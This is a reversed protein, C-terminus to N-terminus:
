TRVGPEAAGLLSDAHGRREEEAVAERVKAVAEDIRSYRRELERRRAEPMVLFLGDADALLVGGRDLVEGHIEVARRTERTVQATVTLEEGVPVPKRFSVALKATVGWVGQHFIAWGMTEDLLATVIGGHVYGDYGTHERTSVFRTRARDRSVEFDLHLGYPNARGCAFCWHDFDIGLESLRAM